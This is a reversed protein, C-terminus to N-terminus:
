HLHISLDAGSVQVSSVPSVGVSSVIDRERAERGEEREKQREGKTNKTQRKKKEGQIERM